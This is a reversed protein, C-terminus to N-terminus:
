VHSVELTAARLGRLYRLIFGLDSIRTSLLTLLAENLRPNGDNLRGEERRTDESPPFAGQANPRSIRADHRL